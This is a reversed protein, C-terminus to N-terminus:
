LCELKFLAHIGYIHRLIIFLKFQLSTEKNSADFAEKVSCKVSLAPVQIFYNSFIAKKSCQQRASGRLM